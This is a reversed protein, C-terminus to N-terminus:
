LARLLKSLLRSKKYAILRRGVMVATDLIIEARLAPWDGVIVNSYSRNRLLMLEGQHRAVGMERFYLIEGHFRPSNPGGFALYCAPCLREDNTHISSARRAESTPTKSGDRSKTVSSTKSKM